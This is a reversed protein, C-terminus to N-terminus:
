KATKKKMAVENANPMNLPLNAITSGNNRAMNKRKRGKSAKKMARRTDTVQTRSAM